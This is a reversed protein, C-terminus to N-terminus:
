LEIITWDPGLLDRMPGVQGTVVIADHERALAAMHLRALDREGRVADGGRGVERAAAKDFAAVLLLTALDGGTLLDLRDAQEGVARVYAEGVALASVTIRRERGRASALLSPVVLSAGDAYDLLGKDIWCM